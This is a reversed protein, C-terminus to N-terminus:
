YIWGGIDPRELDGEKQSEWSYSRHMGRGGHTSCIRGTMRLKIMRIMSPLSHVNNLEENHLRRWDRKPGFTRKSV